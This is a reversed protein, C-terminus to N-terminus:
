SSQPAGEPPISGLSHSGLWVRVGKGGALRRDTRRIPTTTLLCLTLEFLGCLQFRQFLQNLQVRHNASGTLLLGQRLQSVCVAHTAQRLDRLAMLIRAFQRRLWSALAASQLDAMTLEVRVPAEHRLRRRLRQNRGEKACRQRTGESSGASTNAQTTAANHAGRPAPAASEIIQGTDLSMTTTISSTHGDGAVASLCGPM